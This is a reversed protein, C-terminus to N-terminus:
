LARDLHVYGGDVFVHQGTTHGSKPSILFVVMAAIEEPTTMRKEFPIKSLISNLKEEPDAFTDLWQRYLPTMVEAPVVTNVRIAYPLLELAWERTLALVGGKASAYGSTGGQGTVATKSGINVIAGRSRKLSPLAYHAMCYYHVLNRQLSAVYETPNGQELGVKDNVGANNVLADIRGCASVTQEVASSCGEATLLDIAIVKSNVTNGTLESCLRECAESDKDVIVPIGGEAAIARVIATGIGKAGGTVLIVKDRLQLDL